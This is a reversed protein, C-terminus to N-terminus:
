VRQGIQKRVRPLAQAQSLREVCQYKKPLITFMEAQIAEMQNNLQKLRAMQCRYQHVEAQLLRDHMKVLATDVDLSKHWFPLLEHLDDDSYDRVRLYNYRPAAHIKGWKTLGNSTLKGLAYPNATM